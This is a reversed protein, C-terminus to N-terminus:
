VPSFGRFDTPRGGHPPTSQFWRGGREKDRRKHRGGHPPTSQFVTRLSGASTILLRGGHPPTSQFWGVVGKIGKGKVDGGMRPRPNFGVLKIGLWANHFTAGWAPAHISVSYDVHSAVVGITAGWAPAHISVSSISLPPYIVKEDGGMRPRPNFCQYLDEIQLTLHRGGHPPTSQFLRSRTNQLSYERDGGMRPRPNFCPRTMSAMPCRM